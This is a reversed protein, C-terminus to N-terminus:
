LGGHGNSCAGMHSKAALLDGFDKANGTTLIEIYEITNYVTPTKMGAIVGRTPSSTGSAGENGQNLDGFDVASGVTAITIYEITNANGPTGGAALIGRTANSLGAGAGTGGSDGFDAANGLTAITIYDIINGSCRFYIGRTSSACSSQSAFEKANQLNGFDVANGTTAITIYDIVDRAATPGPSYSYGGAWCGRTQNSLGTSGIRGASLDGFDLANGPSSITVYDITLQTAQPFGGGWCGRTRSSVGSYAHRDSRTSDGFDESGGLTSITLYEIVNTNSPNTFGCGFLGRTGTGANSGGGGGYTNYVRDITQWGLTDGKFYELSGSDTNFRLTGPEPNLPREATSGSPPVMFYPSTLETTGVLDPGENGQEKRLNSANLESM